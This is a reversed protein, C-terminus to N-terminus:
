YLFTNGSTGFRITDGPQIGKRVLDHMIGSKRMIDRLRQVGEENDFNTRSAFREIKQGSVIYDSGEKAVTWADQDKTLSLVPM